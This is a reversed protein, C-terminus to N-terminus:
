MNILIGKMVPGQYQTEPNKEKHLGMFFVLVPPSFLTM